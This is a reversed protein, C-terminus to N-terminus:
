AKCRTCTVENPDLTLAAGRLRFSCLPRDPRLPNAVHVAPKKGTRVQLTDPAHVWQAIRKELLTLDFSAADSYQRLQDLRKARYYTFDHELLEGRTLDPVHDRTVVFMMTRRWVNGMSKDRHPTWGDGQPMTATLRYKTQHLIVTHEPMRDEVWRVIEDQWAAIKQRLQGAWQKTFDCSVEFPPHGVGPCDGILYGNGPRTYGHHVMADHTCAQRNFCAQCTGDYRTKM